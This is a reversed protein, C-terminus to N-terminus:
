PFLTVKSSWLFVPTVLIKEFDLYTNTVFCFSVYNTAWQSCFTLFHFTKSLCFGQPWSLTLFLYSFSSRVKELEVKLKNLGLPILSKDQKQRSRTWEFAWLHWCEKLTQKVKEHMINFFSSVYKLIKCHECRFIKVTHKAM